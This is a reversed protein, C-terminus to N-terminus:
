QLVGSQLLDDHDAIQDASEFLDPHGGDAGQQRTRHEAAYWRYWPHPPKAPFTASPRNKPHIKRRHRRVQGRTVACKTM